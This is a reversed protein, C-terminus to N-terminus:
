DASGITQKHTELTHKLIKLDLEAGCDEFLQQAENLYGLSLSQSKKSENKRQTLTYGYDYLTRAHELRMGNKNTIHLAQEFYLNAQEYQNQVNLITGLIRQAYASLWLLEFQRAEELALKACAASQEIEGLQLLVQALVLRGENKTEIEMGELSIAHLITKKAQRLIRIKTELPNKNTNEDIGWIKAQTLRLSALTVLALGTCPNVHLTRGTKLAYFLPPKADSLRGQEQLVIALGSHFMSSSVPDAFREFLNAALRYEEEAEVLNGTRIDLMGLNGLAFTKLPMNNIREALNLSRRLTAQAQSYNATRLYIDGLNCGVIAVERLCDNQEFLALAKNLHPIGDASRGGTAEINSLLM